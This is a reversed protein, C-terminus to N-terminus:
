DPFVHEVHQQWNQPALDGPSGSPVVAVAGAVVAVACLEALVVGYRTSFGGATLLAFGLLEGSLSVVPIITGVACLSRFLPRTAGVDLQEEVHQWRVNAPEWDGTAQGGATSHQQQVIVLLQQQQGWGCPHM